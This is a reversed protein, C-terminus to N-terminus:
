GDSIILRNRGRTEARKNILERSKKLTTLLIVTISFTAIGSDSSFFIRKRLSFTDRNVLKNRGGNQFLCRRPRSYLIQLLPSVHSGHFIRLLRSYLAWLRVPPLLDSAKINDAFNVQLLMEDITTLKECNEPAAVNRTFALQEFFLLLCFVSSSLLGHPSEVPPM